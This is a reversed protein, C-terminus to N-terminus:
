KTFIIEATETCRKLPSTYVREVGPYDFEDLKDLLENRGAASLPYDTKGIYIGKENAETRGHRMIYLRYGKM